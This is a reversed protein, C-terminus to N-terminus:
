TSFAVRNHNPILLGIPRYDYIILRLKQYLGFGGDEFEIRPRPLLFLEKWCKHLLLSHKAYLLTETVNYAQCDDQYLLSQRCPLKSLGVSLGTAFGSGGNIEDETLTSPLGRCTGAEIPYVTGTPYDRIWNLRWAALLLEPM